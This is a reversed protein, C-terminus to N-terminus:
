FPYAYKRLRSSVYIGFHKERFSFTKRLSPVFRAVLSILRINRAGTIKNFPHTGGGGGRGKRKQGNLIRSFLKVRKRIAQLAAKYSAVRPAIIESASCIDGYIFSCRSCSRAACTRRRSVREFNGYITRSKERRM